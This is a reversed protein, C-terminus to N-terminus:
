KSLQEFTRINDDILAFHDKRNLERHLVKETTFVILDAAKERLDNLVQKKEYNLEAQLGDILTKKEEFMKQIEAKKFAEVEQRVTAHMQAIEQDSQQMKSQYSALLEQSDRKSRELETLAENKKLEYADVMKYFSPLVLKHTLGLLLLFNILTWFFVSGNLDFM